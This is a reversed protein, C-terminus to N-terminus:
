KFVSYIKVGNISRYTRRQNRTNTSNRNILTNCDIRRNTHSNPKYKYRYCDARFLIPLVSFFCLRFVFIIPCKFFLECCSAINCLILPMRLKVTKYRKM